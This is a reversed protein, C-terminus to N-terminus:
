RINYNRLERDLAEAVSHGEARSSGNLRDLADDLRRLAMELDEVAERAEEIEEVFEDTDTTVSVTLESVPNNDSM